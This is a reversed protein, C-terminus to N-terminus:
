GLNSPSIEQTTQKEKEKLKALQKAVMLRMFLGVVIGMIPFIIFKTWLHDNWQQQLSKRNFILDFLIILGAVAIGWGIVGHILIYKWRPMALDDEWNKLRQQEKLTLM